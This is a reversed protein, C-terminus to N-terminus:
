LPSVKRAMIPEYVRLTAPHAAALTEGTARDAVAIGLRPVSRDLGCSEMWGFAAGGLRRADAHDELVLLCSDIEVAPAEDIGAFLNRCWNTICGEWGGFVGGGVSTYQRGLVDQDRLTHMAFYPAAMPMMARFRQSTLWGPLRLLNDLKEGSYHINWEDERAADTFACEVTYIM